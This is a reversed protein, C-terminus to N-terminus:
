PTIPVHSAGVYRQEILTIMHELLEYSPPDIVNYLEQPVNLQHAAVFAEFEALEDNRFGHAIALRKLEPDTTLSIALKEGKVNFPVLIHKTFVTPEPYLLVAEDSIGGLQSKAALYQAEYIMLLPSKGPGMVLYDEFPIQSSSELFGQRTYLAAIDDIIPAIQEVKSVVNSGNLIYSALALYMAASNSKRVDTSNILISKNVAFTDNHPLDKWRVGNVVLKLLRPLDSLYYVGHQVRAMGNAELITAIRKWTAVTMPTFFVPYAKTLRQERQIKEAAPAGSPFAFDYQSLDFSTAIQRSGAKVVDVRLGNRLLAQIVRPDGFYEAKESGILGRVQEVRTAARQEQWSLHIALGVGVILLVTLLPGLIRKMHVLLRSSILRLFALM